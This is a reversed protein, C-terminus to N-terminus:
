SYTLLALLLDMLGVECPDTLLDQIGLWAVRTTSAMFNPVYLINPSPKTAHLLWSFQRIRNELHPTALHNRSCSIDLPTSLICAFISCHSGQGDKAMM